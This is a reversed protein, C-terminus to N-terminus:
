ICTGAGSPGVICAGACCTDGGGVSCLTTDPEPQVDSCVGSVEAQNAKIMLTGDSGSDALAFPENAIDLDALQQTNFDPGPCGGGNSAGNCDVGIDYSNSDACIYDGAAVVIGGPDPTAGDLQTAGALSFTNVGNGSISQVPGLGVRSCGSLAPGAGGGGGNLCRIVALQATEGNQGGNDVDIQWMTLVGNATVPLTANCYWRQGGGQTEDDGSQWGNFDTNAPAGAEASGGPVGGICATAYCDGGVEPCDGGTAVATCDAGTLCSHTNCALSCQQALDCLEAGSCEDDPDTDFSVADCVGDSGGTKAALCSECLGSCAVDCCVGDGAPCNGSQCDGDLACALGDACAPCDGGGCDVDTENGGLVGDACQCLGNGDCSDAGACEDDPDTGAAHLTCVGESGAVNCAECVGDCAGDCCLGDACSASQCDSGDNCMFGDACAPCSGGCDIDSEDGDISGNACQPPVCSNGLCVYGPETCDGGDNCAVCDGADNCVVGGGDDCSTGLAAVDVGCSGDVCTRTACDSDTGPCDDASACSQAGGAGGSNGQFFDDYSQTCAAMALVAIISWGARM